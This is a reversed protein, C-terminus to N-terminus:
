LKVIITKEATVTYGRKRLEKVLEQDTLSIKQVVPKEISQCGLKAEELISIAMKENPVAIGERFRVGDHSTKVFMKRRLCVTKVNYASSKSMGFAKLTSVFSEEYDKNEVCKNHMLFLVHVFQSLLAKDGLIQVPSVHATRGSTKSSNSM